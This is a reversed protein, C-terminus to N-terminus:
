QLTGSADYKVIFGDNGGSNTVGDLNGSTHGTIYADGSGDVAMGRAYEGSSTGLMRTWQRVGATNYKLLISDHSGSNVQGDLDANTNGNIYINGGSDVAMGYSVDNGAGGHIVSWQKAGSSDYKVLFIDETDATGDQDTNLNGDFNGYSSGSVYVNESGDVAVGYCYDFVSSGAMRVWQLSGSSNYKAVFMDQIGANAQGGLSGRTVGSVYVNGSAAAAIAYGYNSSSNGLLVTWQKTGSSNYKVLFVDADGSNVQGDLNGYTYGTVYVNESGDVAVGYAYEAAATGLLRTWQKTGASNYKMVFIDNGGANTQGDLSGATTGAVYVNGNTDYVAVANGSEGAATGSLRTWQRAGSSDFKALYVDNGGANTEGYLSGATYGTVYVDGGSNVAISESRETSSTGVLVTGSWGAAAATTASADASLSSANGTGDVASVNYTCATGAALGTDSYSTGTITALLSSNRYVRYSAVGVNDTSATWSLDIRTSSIATASVGAPVSPPTTDGTNVAIADTQASANGAADYAAVRYSFTTAAPLGTDSWSTAMATGVLSGDRYVRYGSVAVDDASATWALNVQSSSAVTAQLNAPVTPASTDGTNVMVDPSKESENGSPDVTSVRYSYTVGQVVGRDSYATDAASAIHGGDRYVRYGSVWVDDTAPQWSLDIQNAGTVNAQVGAPANPATSDSGGGGCGSLSSVCFYLVAALLTHKKM